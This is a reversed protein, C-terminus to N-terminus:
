VKVTQHLMSCWPSTYLSTVTSGASMIREWCEHHAGLVHAGLVIGRYHHAGLVIGRDHHAGLVIGRDRHVGLVIGRDHHAGLVIGRDHHAGLM